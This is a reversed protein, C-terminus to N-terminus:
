SIEHKKLKDRLTSAPIGLAEGAQALNGGSIGLAKEILEKELRDMGERLNLSEVRGARFESTFDVPYIVEGPAGIVM